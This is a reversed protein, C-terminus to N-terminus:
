RTDRVVAYLYAFIVVLFSIMTVIPKEFGFYGDLFDGLFYAAILLGFLQFAMGYYRAYFKQNSKDPDTPKKM